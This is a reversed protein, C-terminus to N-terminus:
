AFEIMGEKAICSIRKVGFHVYSVRHRTRARPCPCRAAQDLASRGRLGHSQSLRTWKGRVIQGDPRRLRWRYRGARDVYLEFWGAVSTRLGGPLGATAWDPHAALEAGTVRVVTRLAKPASDFLRELREPDTPRRPVKSVDVIRIAIEGRPGGAPVPVDVHVLARNKRAYSHGPKEPRASGRVLFPDDFSQLLITKGDMTVQAVHTGDLTPRQVAPGDLSVLGQVRVSRRGIELTVRLRRAGRWAANTSM